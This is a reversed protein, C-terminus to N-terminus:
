EPGRRCVQATYHPDVGGSLPWPKMVGSRFCWVSISPHRGLLQGSVRLGGVEAVSGEVSHEEGVGPAPPVPTFGSNQAHLAPCRPKKGRAICDRPECVLVAHLPLAQPALRWEWGQGPCGVERGGCSAVVKAEGTGKPLPQRATMMQESRSTLRRSGAEWCQQSLTCASVVGMDERGTKRGHFYGYLYVTRLRPRRM